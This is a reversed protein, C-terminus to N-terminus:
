PSPGVPAIEATEKDKSYGHREEVLGNEAQSRLGKGPNHHPSMSIPRM